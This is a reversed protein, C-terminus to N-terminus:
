ATGGQNQACIRFHYLTDHTLGGVPESVNQDETGSGGDRHPTESGYAATKGYQFWYSTPKGGANVHGHLTVSSDTVNTAPDTDTCGTVLAGLVLFTALGGLYRASGRPPPM